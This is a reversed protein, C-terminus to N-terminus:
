QIPEHHEVGGTGGVWLIRWLVICDACCGCAVLAGTSPFTAVPDYVPGYQGDAIPGPQTFVHICNKRGPRETMTLQPAGSLRTVPRKKSASSKLSAQLFVTTLLKQVALILACARIASLMSTMGLLKMLRRFNYALVHLSMETKVCEVGKTLFHTAGMWSKITGYPHEVSSRRLRMVDPNHDLRAQMEDLLNQHEWRTV